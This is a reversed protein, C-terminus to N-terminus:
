FTVPVLKFEDDDDWVVDPNEEVPPDESTVAEVDDTATPEEPKAVPEEPPAAGLVRVGGGKTGSRSQTLRHLLQRFAGSTADVQDNHDGEPFEVLERIYHHNWSAKVLFVNGIEVQASVPQARKLKPDKPEVFRPAYEALLTAYYEVEFKGAQAPDRELMLEVPCGPRQADLEATQKILKQVGAPRLREVIVDEVYYHGERTVSMLVGATASASEDNETAARDWYRFRAVVDSPAENVLKFWPRQFLLGAVPRALWDGFKLRRRSLIDLADLNDEYETGHLFPNDSVSAPFFARGKAGPDDPGCWIEKNQAEDFRFYLRERPAAYVGKYRVGEADPTYLWPAFRRMVWEHGPGGPNTGGRLRTKIGFASRLRSILYVYQFEEFSTLEDFGIYQFGAGKYRYVDQKQQCHGMYIRAGSPFLWYRKQNSAKWRGGLAPYLAHSRDLFSMELEPVTRRLLLARYDKHAYNRLAGILLADTKGGGAAGGYLAEFVGCELFQRQRLSPRWEDTM